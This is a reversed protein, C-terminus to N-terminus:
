LYRLVFFTAEESTGFEFVYNYNETPYFDSVIVPKVPDPERSIMCKLEIEMAFMADLLTTDGKINFHNIAISRFVKDEVKVIPDQM